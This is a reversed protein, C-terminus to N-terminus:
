EKIKTKIAQLAKEEKVARFYSRWLIGAMILFTLLYAPWVYIGFGGMSIFESM